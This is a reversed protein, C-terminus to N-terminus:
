PDSVIKIIILHTKSFIKFDVINSLIYDNKELGSSKDHDFLCFFISEMDIFTKIKLLNYFM